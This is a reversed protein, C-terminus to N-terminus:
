GGLQVNQKACRYNYEKRPGDVAEIVVKLSRQKEDFTFFKWLAMVSVVSDEYFKCTYKFSGPVAVAGGECQDFWETYSPRATLFSKGKKYQVLWVNKNTPEVSSCLYGPSAYAPAASVLSVTALAAIIIKM